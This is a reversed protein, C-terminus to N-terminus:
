INLLHFVLEMLLSCILEPFLLCLSAPVLMSSHLCNIIYQKLCLCSHVSQSVEFGEQKLKISQERQSLSSVTNYLLVADLLM